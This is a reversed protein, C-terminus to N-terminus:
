WCVRDPSLEFVLRFSEGHPLVSSCRQQQYGAGNGKEEVSAAHAVGDVIVPVM